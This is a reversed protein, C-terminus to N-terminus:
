DTLLIGPPTVLTPVAKVLNFPTVLEAHPAILPITLRLDKAIRPAMPAIIKM